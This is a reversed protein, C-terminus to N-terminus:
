VVDYFTTDICLVTVVPDRGRPPLILHVHLDPSM